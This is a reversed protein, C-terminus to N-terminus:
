HKEKQWSIFVYNCPLQQFTYSLSLLQRFEYSLQKTVVSPIEHCAEGHFQLKCDVTYEQNDM